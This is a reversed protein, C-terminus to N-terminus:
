THSKALDAKSGWLLTELEEGLLNRVVASTIRDPALGSQLLVYSSAIQREIGSGSLRGLRRARQLTSWWRQLLQRRAREYEEFEFGGVQERIQAFELWPAAFLIRQATLAREQELRGACPACRTASADELPTGCRECARPARARLGAVRQRLRDLAQGLDPAPEPADGSSRTRPRVPPPPASRKRRLAGVRFSLREVAHGASQARLGALIQPSLLQLQNSWASSRTVVLLTTGNLELPTANEAVREGVIVPWAAALAHIPDASVPLAPWFGDCLGRLPRLM